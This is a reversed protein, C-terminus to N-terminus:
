TNRTVERSIKVQGELLRYVKNNPFIIELDWLGKNFDLAQTQSDTLEIRITGTNAFITCTFVAVADAYFDAYGARVQAKASYGALSVVQGNVDKCVIDMEFTSGQEIILNQKKAM